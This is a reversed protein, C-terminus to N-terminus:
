RRGRMAPGNVSRLRRDHILSCTLAGLAEMVRLGGTPRRLLRAGPAPRRLLRPLRGTLHRPLHRPLGGPGGVRRAGDQRAPDSGPLAELAREELAPQGRGQRGPRMRAAQPRVDEPRGRQARAQGEAPAPLAGQLALAEVGGNRRSPDEIGVLEDVDVPASQRADHAITRIQYSSM